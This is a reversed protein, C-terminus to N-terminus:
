SKYVNADHKEMWKEPHAIDTWGFKKYLEHADNTLLMWRRLGQLEPHNMVEQMLLKSLGRGRFEHLVFVDGLYAITAFDSIVRAYGVQMGNYYIGFNLSTAICKAVRVLSIGKSWNSEKTLFRHIVDVQLKNKDTSIEFDGHITTVDEMM